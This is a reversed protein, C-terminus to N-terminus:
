LNRGYTAKVRVSRRFYLFWFVTGLVGTLPGATFPMGSDDLSGTAGLMGKFLIIGTLLFAILFYAMLAELAYATRTVLLVGVVIGFATLLRYCWDTLTPTASLHNFLLLPGLVVRGLCFALIWGGVELHRQGPPPIFPYVQATATNHNAPEGAQVSGCSSCFKQGSRVQQGCNSCFM